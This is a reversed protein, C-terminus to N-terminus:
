SRSDAGHDTTEAESEEPAKLSRRFNRIGEGIGKGLRPLKSAGFIVVIILLVILLEQLGLNPIRTRRRTRLSRAGLHCHLLRSDLRGADHDAV